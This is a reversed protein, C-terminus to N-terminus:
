APRLRAGGMIAIADAGAFVARTLPIM